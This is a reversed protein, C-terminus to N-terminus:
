VYADLRVNRTTSTETVTKVYNMTGEGNDTLATKNHYNELRTDTYDTAYTINNVMNTDSQTKNYYQNEIQTKNYYQNEIQTKNYYQNEIQTKNFYQIIANSISLFTDTVWSTQNVNEDDVYEKMSDNFTNARSDITANLKTENFDLNEGNWDFWNTLVTRNFKGKFWNGTINDDVLIDDNFRCIGNSGNYCTIITEDYANGSVDFGIYKQEDYSFVGAEGDSAIIYGRGDLRISGFDSTLNITGASINYISMNLNANLVPNSRWNSFYPDVEVGSPTGFGSAISVWDVYYHNNINGNSAKYLRMQVVGGSIHESDDFVPQTITAFTLSESMPPYDEWILSDYNWLQIIPYTGALSSTKYRIIGRNFSEIDTYNMRFDLGPSGSVETFNLTKGDYSGDQHQTDALTGADITGSVASVQTVNYYTTSLKSDNFNFGNTTNKLIWDEDSYYTINTDVTHNGESFNLAIIGATTNPAYITNLYSENLSANGGEVCNTGDSYCINEAYLNNDVTLNTTVTVDGVPNFIMIAKSIAYSYIQFLSAKGDYFIKYRVATSERFVLTANDNGAGSSIAVYTNNTPQGSSDLGDLNRVEFDYGSNNTGIGVNPSLNTPHLTIDGGVNTTQSWLSDGSGGSINSTYDAITENLHTENFTLTEGDFTMWIQSPIAIVWNFLGNFWSDTTQNGTFSNSQNTLALNDYSMNGSGSVNYYNNTISTNGTSTTTPTRLSPVETNDFGFDSSVFQILFISILVVFLFKIKVM